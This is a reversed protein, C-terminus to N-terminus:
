IANAIDSVQFAVLVHNNPLAMSHIARVECDTALIGVTQNLTASYTALSSAEFRYSEGPSLSFLWDLRNAPNRFYQAMQTDTVYILVRDSAVSSPLRALRFLDCLVKAARQTRNQNTGGPNGRDYKFEFAATWSGDNSRIVTDIRAGAITPHPYELTLETPRLAGTATLAFYFTYRVTDETTLIPLALRESLLAGFEEFTQALM